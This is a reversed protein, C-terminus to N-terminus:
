RSLEAIADTVVTQAYRRDVAIGNEDRVDRTTSYLAELLLLLGRANGMIMITPTPELAVWSRSLVASMHDGIGVVETGLAEEVAAVGDALAIAAGRDEVVLVAVKEIRTTM